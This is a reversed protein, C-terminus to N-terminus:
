GLGRAQRPGKSQHGQEQHHKVPRRLKTDSPFKILACKMAEEQNSISTFCFLDWYLGICYEV